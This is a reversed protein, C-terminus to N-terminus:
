RRRRRPSAPRGRLRCRLALEAALCRHRPHRSGPLVQGVGHVHHRRVQRLLDAADHFDHGRDGVAVELLVQRDLRLALDGRERLRDVVHGVRQRSEGVLDSRDRSLHADFAPEAALGVDRASRARPLVQRAVDVQQRRVQGGLHPGDRLHRGCHGFAIEGSRDLDVRAALDGLELVVDIRHDVIQAQRGLAIGLLVPQFGVERSEDVHQLALAVQRRDALHQQLLQRRQDGGLVADDVEDVRLAVGTRM